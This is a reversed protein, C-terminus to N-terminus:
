ECTEDGRGSHPELVLAAVWKEGFQSKHSGQGGTSDGPTFCYFVWVSLSVEYKTSMRPQRSVRIELKVNFISKGSM